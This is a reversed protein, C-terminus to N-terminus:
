SGEQGNRGRAQQLPMYQKHGLCIYHPMQRWGGRGGRLWPTQPPLGVAAWIESLNCYAGIFMDQFM